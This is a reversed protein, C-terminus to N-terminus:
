PRARQRLPRGTIDKRHTNRNFGGGTFTVFVHGKETGIYIFNNLTGSGTANPDPAGFALAPAYSDDLDPKGDGQRNDSTLGGVVFWTKGQDTTRFVRGLASTIVIGNPAIPNVAFNSNVRGDPFGAALCA